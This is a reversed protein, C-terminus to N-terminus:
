KKHQKKSHKKSGKKPGPKKGKRSKKQLGCHLKCSNCLRTHKSAKRTGAMKKKGFLKKKL